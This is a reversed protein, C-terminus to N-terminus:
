EKLRREDVAYRDQRDRIVYGTAAGAAAGVAGGVAARKLCSELDRDDALIVSACGAAAGIGAGYLAGQAPASAAYDQLTGRDDTASGSPDDPEGITGACAALALLLLPWGPMTQRIMPKGGGRPLM